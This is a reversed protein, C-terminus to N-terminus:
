ARASLREGRLRDVVFWPAYLVFIAAIGLAIVEPIYYPWAPMFDFLTAHGPKARFFGYNTGLAWDTLGAAAAYAMTWAAVRPISAPVPRMRTGFTLYVVAAIIAAHGLMFVVFQLEPFGFNVDPTILGQMTGALAWFYALEYARQNPWLLAVILAIAAWDCLNMPFENGPGLWNRAIFLVYWAIWTGILIAAFAYRIAVDSQARRRAISALLAPVIFTLAIVLLHGRGFLVFKDQVFGRRIRHPTWRPKAAIQHSPRGFDRRILRFFARAAVDCSPLITRLAAPSASYSAVTGAFGKRSGSNM